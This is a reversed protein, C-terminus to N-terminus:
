AELKQFTLYFTTGESLRSKFSIGGGFGEMINKVMALGLGSGTSKTTFNPTFIKVAQEESIGAGNDEISIVITKPQQEFRIHIVPQDTEALAQVANKLVNNFVRLTQERNAKVLLRGSETDNTIKIRSEERFLYVSAEIVEALNVNELSGEPLRAFNSFETAISALSDIQEIIANVSRNFKEHFDEDNNKIVHQLYQLNLKMPTLPNKIEHAVQKAMERWASERENQALLQASEELKVLMANYQEVLRGIEDRSQWTIKENKRGLSIKAFQQQILRLPQTIYGALLLGTLISLVFLLVYVNVLASIIGSLEDVLASQRAFYPLNVFGLLESNKGIVPTYYSLYTLAGAKEYVAEASSRNNKLQAFAYPNLLKAALGLEYLKTESTTFLKGDKAFLSIPTNFLRAYERLKLNVLDRRSEDFVAERTFATTLEGLIVQTKEELENKNDSEFKATVIRASTYGIASMSVLLLIIVASQIRRTLSPDRSLGSVLRNYGFYFIFALFSYYLLLYSNATFFQSITRARESIIISTNDEPYYYHHQFKPQASSLYLSDQISFPYSLDGQQLTLLGDRYVAYSFSSLREHRQQSRDLLLDPFTGLEESQKVDMLVYLKWDKLPIIAIYRTATHYRDAFYLYQIATSDGQTAILDEFYGANNLRGDRVQLQPECRQDFVQMSIAYRDFYGSFYHQKLLLEVGEASAPLIQLLNNLNKDAALQSPLLSFEHELVPDVRESLKFSLLKLEQSENKDVYTSLLRSSLLSLLVVFVSIALQPRSRFRMILVIAPVGLLLPWSLELWSSGPHIFFAAACILVLQLLVLLWYRLGGREEKKGIVFYLSIFFSLGYVLLVALASLLPLQLNFVNLLDFSITSNTVVSALAQNLAIVSLFGPIWRLYVFRLQSPKKWFATCIILVLCSNLLLDGLYANFVSNADGFIRVDYWATRYLFDPLRFHMLILRLLILLLVAAWFLLGDTGLLVSIALLLFGAFFLVTCFLDMSKSHYLEDPGDIRFLEAGRFSVPDGKTGAPQLTLENPINTWAEFNNSLYNNQLEYLPRILCLLIATRQEGLSRLTYFYSGHRLTILGSTGQFDSLKQQFPIRSNNWFVLSDKQFVYIGGKQRQYFVRLAKEDKFDLKEFQEGQEELVASLDGSLESIRRAGVSDLLVSALLAMLAILLLKRFFPLRHM